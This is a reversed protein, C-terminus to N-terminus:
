TQGIATLGTSLQPAARATEPFSWKVISKLSGLPAACDSMVRGVAESPDNQCAQHDQHARRAPQARVSRARKICNEIYVPRASM